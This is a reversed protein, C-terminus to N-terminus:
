MEAAVVAIKLDNFSPLPSVSACLLSLQSPPGGPTLVARPTSALGGSFVGDTVELVYTAAPTTPPLVISSSAGKGGRCAITVRDVITCNRRHAVASDSFDDEQIFAAAAKYEEESRRYTAYCSSLESSNSHDDASLLALAAIGGSFGVGGAGVVLTGSHEASTPAEEAGEVPEPSPIATEPLWAAASGVDCEGQAARGDGDVSLEVGDRKINLCISHWSSPTLSRSEPWRACEIESTMTNSAPESEPPLQLGSNIPESTSSPETPDSCLTSTGTIALVFSCGTWDAEPKVESEGEVSAEVETEVVAPFNSAPVELYLVLSGSSELSTGGISRKLTLLEVRVTAGSASEGTQEQARTAALQAVDLSFDVVFSLAKSSGRTDIHAVEFKATSDKKM